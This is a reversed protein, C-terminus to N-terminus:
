EHENLQRVGLLSVCAEPKGEYGLGERHNWASQLVSEEWGEGRGGCVAVHVDSCLM